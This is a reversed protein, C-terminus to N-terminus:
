SGLIIKEFLFYFVSLGGTYLVMVLFAAPIKLWYSQEQLTEYALFASLGLIIEPIILYVAIHRIMTVNVAHWSPIMWMTEESMMFILLSSVVVAYIAAHQSFRDRFRKGIFIIMFLPIAWLGAMYASVDGIRVFGDDPFVLVGLQASLFWDPIVQFISILLAFIWIHFWEEKPYRIGVLPVAINYLVVLVAMKLGVAMDLPLTLVAVCAITFLLHLFIADREISTLIKFV